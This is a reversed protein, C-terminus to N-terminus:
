KKSKEPLISDASLKGAVALQLAEQWAGIISDIVTIKKWHLFQYHEEEIGCCIITKVREKIAMDCFAEATPEAILITHPEEILEGDYYMAIVIETATDCRPAIYSGEIPILIKM